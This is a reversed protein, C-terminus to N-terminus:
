FPPLEAVLRGHGTVPAHVKLRQQIEWARALVPHLIPIGLQKELPDIVELLRWGSGLTYVGDVDRHKAVASTIFAAIESSPVKDANAFDVDLSEFGLVSFGADELYKTFIATMDPSFMCTAGVLRKVKLARLARVHNQSSTFVQTDYQKEWRATMEAEREAGLIMFPPAGEPHNIDCKQAGLLAVLREYTPMANSLEEYTERHFNLYVPAYAVGPPLFPILDEIHGQTITPKIMGITGVRGGKSESM